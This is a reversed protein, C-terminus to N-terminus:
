VEEWTMSDIFGMGDGLVAGQTNQELYKDILAAIEEKTKGCADVDFTILIKIKV